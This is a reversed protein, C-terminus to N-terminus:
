SRRIHNVHTVTNGRIEREDPIADADTMIPYSDSHQRDVHITRPYPLDFPDIIPVKFRIDEEDLSSISFFQQLQMGRNSPMRVPGIAYRDGNLKVLFDRQSLLPSPYTWTDYSHDQTRGRNTQRVAKEGDDPAIIINFPGEFGGIYRTGFCNLCDSKGQKHLDTVCGCLVGVTKRLFVKVREGGQDLIWSNRRVAERWIWDLKEVELNNTRASKDLPTEVLEGTENDVAVSTIRYFIRAHLDSKVFNKIYKYTCLVVDNNNIPLIPSTKKHNAVDYNSTNKLEIEGTASDLGSVTAQINNVTVFVSLNECDTIGPYQEVFIPVNKVRFIYRGYVDKTAGRAIFSNSVDEQLAVTVETRDRYFTTGIPVPTLRIFPGFESDFSRYVNVGILSFKTNSCLVSPDSWRIDYSGKQFSSFCQITLPPLPYASDENELILPVDDRIVDRDRPGPM